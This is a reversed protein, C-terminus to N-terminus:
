CSDELYEGCTTCHGHQYMWPSWRGLTDEATLVKNKMEDLRSSNRCWDRADAQSAFTAFLEGDVRGQYRLQEAM